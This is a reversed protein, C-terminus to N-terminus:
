NRQNSNRQGPGLSPAWELSPLTLLDTRMATIAHPNSTMPPVTAQAEPSTSGTQTPLLPVIAAHTWFSLPLKRNISGLLLLCSM